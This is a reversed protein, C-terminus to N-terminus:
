EIIKSDDEMISMSKLADEEEEKPDEKLVDM